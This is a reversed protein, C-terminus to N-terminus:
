NWISGYGDEDIRKIWEKLSTIADEDIIHDHWAGSGQRQCFVYKLALWLRGLFSRQCYLQFSIVPGEEHEHEVIFQHEKCGCRCQIIRRFM